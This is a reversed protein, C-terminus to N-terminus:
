SLVWQQNHHRALWVVILVADAALVITLQMPWNDFQNPNDSM